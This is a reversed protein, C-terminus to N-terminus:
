HEKKIKSEPEVKSAVQKPPSSKINHEIEAQRQLRLNEEAM